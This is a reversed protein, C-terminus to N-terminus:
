EDDSSCGDWTNDSNLLELQIDVPGSSRLGVAFYNCRANCKVGQKAWPKKLWAKSCQIGSTLQPRMKMGRAELLNGLGSFM